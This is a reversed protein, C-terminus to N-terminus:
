TSHSPIRSGFWQLDDIFLVTPQERALRDFLLSFSDLLRRSLSSPQIPPPEEAPHRLTGPPMLSAIVSSWPRGLAELHPELDVDRLADLICNLPISRELEVPDARLCRFGRAAAERCIEGLVRTKGIGSEGSILLM